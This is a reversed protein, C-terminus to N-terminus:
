NVWVKYEFSICLRLHYMWLFGNCCGLVSASFLIVNFSDYYATSAIRFYHFLVGLAVAIWGIIKTDECVMGCTLFLLTPFVGRVFRLDRDGDLVTARGIIVVVLFGFCTVAGLLCTLFLPLAFPLHSKWLYICWYSYALFGLFFSWRFLPEAASNDQNSFELKTVRKVPVIFIFCSLIFSIWPLITDNPSLYTSVTVTSNGCPDETLDSSHDRCSDFSPCHVYQIHSALLVFIFWAFLPVGM